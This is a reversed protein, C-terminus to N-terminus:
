GAFQARAWRYDAKGSPSREVRDRFLVAKPLKYRAIHRACAERLDHETLEAGPRLQVVACVEQGWRESHRGCVVADRVDPHRKLAAEVEEAFIKEGGSNITVSDRGLVEVQGGATLRARDGPVSFRTEGVVPFTKRTKEEDGLYGLPVHGCQAFWGIEDQGPALMRTLDESLVCAGRAPVFTGSAVNEGDSVHTGQQGSESSGIADLLVRGPLLELLRQKVRPSMPAGSNTLLRLEPLAHEGRELEEILPLGFADGVLLLANAGERAAVRLVDAPDFRRTQDQIIVSGGSHWAIFSSWHAAGHM